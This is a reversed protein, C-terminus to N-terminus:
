IGNLAALVDAPEPRVRFDAHAEAFAITNERDIVFVGPLPLRWSAETATQYNLGANNFPINVLISQFYRRQEPSVSYALGFHSAIECGPDALLPFPLGHQDLTFANQRTTQPGISVFLGGRNRVESYLDRWIELETICYPDWRGRFFSVILPGLSLLDASSVPKGTRADQLKFSPAQSGVKLVRDEIGSGFLEAVTRESFELREPQVLARTNQTIRDLQDQLSTGLTKNTSAAV